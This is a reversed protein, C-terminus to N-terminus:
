ATGVLDRRSNHGVMGGVAGAALALVVGLLTWWASDKVADFATKPDVQDAQEQAQDVASTVDSTNNQVANVIDGFNSGLAGVVASVGSGALFIILALIACGVMLGNIMGSGVGGVAATRAAIFGGLFLAIVASVAGWIAAGTGVTQGVDRPELASSGVAVGLISLIVLTALATLVGAIIPGWQVRNKAAVTDVDPVAHTTYAPTTVREVPQTVSSRDM